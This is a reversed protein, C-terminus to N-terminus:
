FRFTNLKKWIPKKKKPPKKGSKLYYLQEKLELNERFLNILTTHVKEYQAYEKLSKRVLCMDGIVNPRCMHCYDPLNKELFMARTKELNPGFWIDKLSKDKINDQSDKCEGCHVAVGEATIMLYFWPYYCPIDSIDELSKEKLAPEKVNFVKFKKTQITKQRKVNKKIVEKIDSTKEVLEKNFEKKEDEGEMCSIFTAINLKRALSETKRIIGPLQHLEKSTLKINQGLESHIIMPEIFIADAGLQSAM